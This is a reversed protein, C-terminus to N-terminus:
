SNLLQKLKDVGFTKKYPIQKEELEKWLAERTDEQITEPTFDTKIELNTEEEIEIASQIEPQKLVQFNHKRMWQFNNALKEPINRIVGKEGIVKVKKNM